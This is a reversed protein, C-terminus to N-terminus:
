MSVIKTIIPTLNLLTRYGAPLPEQLSLARRYLLVLKNLYINISWVQMLFGEASGALSLFVFTPNTFILTLANVLEEGVPLPGGGAGTLDIDEEESSESESESYKDDGGGGRQNLPRAKYSARRFSSGRSQLRSRCVQVIIKNNTLYPTFLPASSLADNRTPSANSDQGLLM